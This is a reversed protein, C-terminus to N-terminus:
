VRKLLSNRWKLSIRSQKLKNCINLRNVLKSESPLAAGSQNWDSACVGSHVTECSLIYHKENQTHEATAPRVVAHLCFSIFAVVRLRNNLHTYKSISCSSTPFVSSYYRRRILVTLAQLLYQNNAYINILLVFPLAVHLVVGLNAPSTRQLRERTRIFQHSKWDLGDRERQILTLCILLLLLFFVAM